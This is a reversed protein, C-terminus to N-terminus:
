QDIVTPRHNPEEFLSPIVKHPIQLKSEMAQWFRSVLNLLLMYPCDALPEWIPDMDSATVADITAAVVDQRMRKVNAANAKAM